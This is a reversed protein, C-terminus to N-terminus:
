GIWNVQIREVKFQAVPEVADAERHTAEDVPRRERGFWLQGRAVAQPLKTMEGISLCRRRRLLPECVLLFARVRM